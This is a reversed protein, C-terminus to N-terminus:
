KNKNFLHNLAEKSSAQKMGIPFQQNFRGDEISTILAQFVHKAGENFYYYECKSSYQNASRVELREKLFTLLELKSFQNSNAM